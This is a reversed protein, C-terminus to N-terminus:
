THVFLVNHSGSGTPPSAGLLDAVPLIVGGNGPTNMFTPQCFRNDSHQLAESPWNKGLLPDNVAM